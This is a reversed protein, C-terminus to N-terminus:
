FERGMDIHYHIGSKENLGCNEKLWESIKFLCIMGEIGAPIRFRKETSDHVESILGEIRSKEWEPFNVLSSCEIEIGTSFPLYSNAVQRLKEDGLSSFALPSSYIM